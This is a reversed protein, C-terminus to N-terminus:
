GEREQYSSVLPQAAATDTVASYLTTNEYATAEDVSLLIGLSQLLQQSWGTTIRKGASGPIATPVSGGISGALARAFAYEVPSFRAELVTNSEHAKDSNFIRHGPDADRSLLQESSFLVSLQLQSLLRCCMPTFRSPSSTTLFLHTSLM